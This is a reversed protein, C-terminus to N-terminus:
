GSNSICRSVLSNIANGGFEARVSAQKSSVSKLNPAMIHTGVLGLVTPDCHNEEISELAPFTIGESGRPPRFFGVRTLVLRKLAPMPANRLATWCEDAFYTLELEELRTLPSLPSKIQVAFLHLRRTHYLWPNYSLAVDRFTVSRLHVDKLADEDVSVSNMAHFNQFSISSIQAAISPTVTFAPPPPPNKPITRRDRSPIPKFALVLSCGLLRSRKAFVGILPVQSSSQLILRTWLKSLNIAANRWRTSVHSLDMAMRQPLPISYSGQSVVLDFIVLLVDDPILSVNKSPLLPNRRWELQTHRGYPPHGIPAVPGLSDQMDPMGM